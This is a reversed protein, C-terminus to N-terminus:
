EQVSYAQGLSIAIQQKGWLEVTSNPGFALASGPRIGLGYATPEQYLLSQLAQKTADDPIGSLVASNALWGFGPSMQHKIVWQGFLDAGIGAGMVLAGREYAIQLAKIAAGHMGNYLRQYDPGDGIIVIGAETIQKELTEDDEMIIDVAYNVPGGLDNLYTLYPETMEANHAAGIYVLPGGAAGRTLMRMDIAETIGAEFSGGSSLVLWGAGSRWRFISSQFM